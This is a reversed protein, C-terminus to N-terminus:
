AIMGHEVVYRVLSTTNHFGLKKLIHKRHTNVTLESICLEGAIQSSSAGQALHKLIDLERSTLNELHDHMMNAQLPRLDGKTKSQQIKKTTIYQEVLKRSIEDPLSVEDHFVNHIANIMNESTSTRLFYGSIGLKLLNSVFWINNSRSVVFLKNTAFHERFSIFRELSESDPNTMDLVVMDAHSASFKELARNIKVSESIIEIWEVNKLIAVIGDGDLQQEATVLVRRREM